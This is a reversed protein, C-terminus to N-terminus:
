LKRGEINVGRIRSWLSRTNGVSTIVVAEVAYTVDPWLGGIRTITATKMNTGAPVIETSPGELHIMPNPDVGLSVTVFWRSSVLFEDHDLDNVFDLGLVESEGNEQPSFDKGVYV